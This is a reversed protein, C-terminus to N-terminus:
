KVTRNPVLTFTFSAFPASSGRYNEPAKFTFNLQVKAFLPGSGLATSSFSDLTLSTNWESSGFTKGKKKLKKENKQNTAHKNKKKKLPHFNFSWGLPLTDDSSSSIQWSLFFCLALHLFFCHPSLFFFLFFIHIFFLYFFLFVFIPPLHFVSIHALEVMTHWEELLHHLHAEQQNQLCNLKSWITKCWGTTEVKQFHWWVAQQHNQQHAQSFFLVLFLCVFSCCFVVSFLTLNFFPHLTHFLFSIM